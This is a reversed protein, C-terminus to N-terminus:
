RARRAAMRYQGGLGLWELRREFPRLAALLAPFFLKYDVRADEWGAALARERLARGRILRANVDFPCTSVARATLPNWPNHEYVVLVGGRRTVRLLEGLWYPHEDHAIHHFVCASFVVDQSASPLPVAGNIQVYVERGPFRGRAIEMSRASADACTVDSGPFYDRFYPLSNGIGSGFDLIRTTPVRLRGLLEALDAIKYEAFYEPSEGTIAVNEEHLLRYEDAFLDFEAQM